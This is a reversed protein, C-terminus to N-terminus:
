SRGVDRTGSWCYRLLGSSRAFIVVIRLFSACSFALMSALSLLPAFSWSSAVRSPRILSRFVLSTTVWIRSSITLTSRSQSSGLVNTSPKLLILSTLLAASIGRMAATSAAKAVNLESLTERRELASARGCQRVRRM